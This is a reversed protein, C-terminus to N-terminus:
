EDEQPMCHLQILIFELYWVSKLFNSWQMMSGTHNKVSSLEEHNLKYCFQQADEKPIRKVKWTCQVAGATGDSALKINMAQRSYPM